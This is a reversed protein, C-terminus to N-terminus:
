PAVTPEGQTSSRRAECAELQKRLIVADLATQRLLRQRASEDPGDLRLDPPGSPRVLDRVPDSPPPDGFPVPRASLELVRQELQARLARERVLSEDLREV